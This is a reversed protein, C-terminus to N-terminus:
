EGQRVRLLRKQASSQVACSPSLQACSAAMLRIPGSGAMGKEGAAPGAGSTAYSALPACSSGPEGGGPDEGTPTRVVGPRLRSIPRPNMRGTKFLGSDLIVRCPSPAGFRTPRLLTRSRISAASTLFSSRSCAARRPRQRKGRAGRRHASCGSPLRTRRQLTRDPDLGRRGRAAGRHPAAQGQLAPASSAPGDRGSRWARGSV